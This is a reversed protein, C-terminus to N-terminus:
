FDRISCLIWRRKYMYLLWPVDSRFPALNLFWFIIVPVVFFKFFLVISFENLSVVTYNRKASCCSLLSMPSRLDGKKFLNWNFSLFLFFIVSCTHRNILLHHCNRRSALTSSFLPSCLLWFMFHLCLWRQDISILVSVCMCTQFFPVPFSTKNKFIAHRNPKTTRSIKKKSRKKARNSPAVFSVVQISSAVRGPDFCNRTSDTTVDVVVVVNNLAITYSRSSLSLACM